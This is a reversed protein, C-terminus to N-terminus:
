CCRCSVRGDKVLRWRQLGSGDDNATLKMYKESCTASASLYRLCKAPKEADIINVCETGAVPVFRWRKLPKHLHVRASWPLDTCGKKGNFSYYDSLYHGTCRARGKPVWNSLAAIASKTKSDHSLVSVQWRKWTKSDVDTRLLPGM